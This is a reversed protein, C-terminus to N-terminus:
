PIQLPCWSLDPLLKNMDDDNDIKNWEINEEWKKNMAENNRWSFSLSGTEGDNCWEVVDTVFDFYEVGHCGYVEKKEEFYKEGDGNKRWTEVDVNWVGWAMVMNAKSGYNFHQHSDDDVGTKPYIHEVHYKNQGRSRYEQAGNNTTSREKNCQLISCTSTGSSSALQKTCLNYIPPIESNTLQLEKYDRCKPDHRNVTRSNSNIMNRFPTTKTGHRQCLNYVSQRVKDLIENHKATATGSAKAIVSTRIDQLLELETQRTPDSVIAKLDIHPLGPVNCALAGDERNFM